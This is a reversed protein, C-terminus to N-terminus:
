KQWYGLQVGGQIVIAFTGWPAQNTPPYATKAGLKEAEAVAKGIDDVAVYTRIIPTEHQALPARVGVLTGDTKRAIRAQGMEPIKAGFSVDYQKEFLSVVSDVNETVVEYYHIKMQDEKSAQASFSFLLGLLITSLKYFKM